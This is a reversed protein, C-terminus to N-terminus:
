GRLKLSPLEEEGSQKVVRALAFQQLRHTNSNFKRIGEALARANVKQLNCEDPWVPIMANEHIGSDEDRPGALLAWMSASGQAPCARDLNTRPFYAFNVSRLPCGSQSDM